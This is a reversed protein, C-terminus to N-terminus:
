EQRGDLLQRLLSRADIYTRELIRFAQHSDNRSVAEITDPIHDWSSLGQDVANSVWLSKYPRCRDWMQRVLDALIDNGSADYLAGLIEEGELVAEVVAGRESASQLLEWHERMVTVVSADARQAGQRGAEPELLIRVAYMHEVEDITLMRVTAGRYPETEILGAQSLRRFAERVPMESTGVLGAVERIRLQKGPQWEGRTIWHRLIEFVQDALLSSGVQHTLRIASTGDSETMRRIM